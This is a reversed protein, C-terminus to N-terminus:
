KVIINIISPARSGPRAGRNYCIIIIIIIIIIMITNSIAGFSHIFSYIETPHPRIFHYLIINFLIMDFIM